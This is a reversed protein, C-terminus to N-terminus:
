YNGFASTACSVEGGALAQTPECASSTFWNMLRRPSPSSLLFLECTQSEGAVVSLNENRWLLRERELYSRFNHIRIEKSLRPTGERRTALRFLSLSHQFLYRCCGFEQKATM